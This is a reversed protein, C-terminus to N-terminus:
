EPKDEPLAPTEGRARIAAIIDEITPDHSEGWERKMQRLLKVIAAREVAVAEAVRKAVQAPSLTKYGGDPETESLRM